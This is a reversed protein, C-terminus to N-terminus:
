ESRAHHALRVNPLHNYNKTIRINVKAACSRCRTSVKQIIAGCEMCRKRKNRTHIKRCPLCRTAGVKIRKGCDPCRNLAVSSFVLGHIEEHCKTCLTVGNSVDLRLEPHESFKKVHHAHLHGGRKGCSLCTYGDREFVQRRWESYDACKRIKENPETVGGKWQPHNSGMMHPYRKGRHSLSQKERTEKSVIRPKQEPSTKITKKSQPRDAYCKRSCYKPTRGICAKNSFFENGCTNCVFLVVKGM